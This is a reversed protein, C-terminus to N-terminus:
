QSAVSFGNIQTAAAIPTVIRTPRRRSPLNPQAPRISACRRLEKRMHALLATEQINTRGSTLIHITPDLLIKDNLALISLVIRFHPLPKVAKRPPGASGM